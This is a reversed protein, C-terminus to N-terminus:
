WSQKVGIGAEILKPQVEVQLFSGGNEGLCIRYLLREIVCGAMEEPNVDITAPRPDLGELLAMENNCGIFEVDKGPMIGERFFGKQIVLLCGDIPVFIGTARNSTNAFQQIFKVLEPIESYDKIRGDDDRESFPIHIVEVDLGARKAYDIFVRRRIDIAPHGQKLNTPDFFTVKTHGRSAFYNAATVGIRDNAPEIHDALLPKSIDPHGFVSVFPIEVSGAQTQSDQFGCIVAGDIKLDDLQFRQGQSRVLITILNRERLKEEISHLFRAYFPYNIMNVQEGHFVVGISGYTLGAPFDQIGPGKRKIRSRPIYNLKKMALRVRKATEESVGKKRNIVYSVTAHSVGAEKAVDTISM